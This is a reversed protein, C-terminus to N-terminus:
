SQKGVMAFHMGGCYSQKGFLDFQKRSLKHLRGTHWSAETALASTDM